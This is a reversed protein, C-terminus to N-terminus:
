ATAIRLHEDAIPRTEGTAVNTRTATVSAYTWFIRLPATDSANRFFHPVGAAVWSADSASLRHEVGDIMAIAEGELILISEECNHYHEQIASHPAIVTIGNILQTSGTSPMILPITRNGHGRDAVKQGAARV